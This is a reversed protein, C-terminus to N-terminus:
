FISPREPTEEIAPTAAIQDLLAVTEEKAAEESNLKTTIESKLNDIVDSINIKSMDDLIDLIDIPAGKSNASSIAMAKVVNRCSELCADVVPTVRDLIINGVTEVVDAKLAASTDTLATRTDNAIETSSKAKYKKSKYTVVIGVIISIIALIYYVSQFAVVPNSFLDLLDADGNYLKAMTGFFDDSYVTKVLITYSLTPDTLYIRYPNSHTALYEGNVKIGDVYATNEVDYISYGAGLDICIDFYLKETLEDYGVVYYVGETVSDSTYQIVCSSNNAEMAELFELIHAPVKSTDVTTDEVTDNDSPVEEPPLDQPLDESTIIEEANSAVCLVSLALTLVICFALTRRFFKKM